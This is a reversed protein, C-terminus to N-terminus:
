LFIDIYVETVIISQKGVVPLIDKVMWSKPLAYPYQSSPRSIQEAMMPSCIVLLQLIPAVDLVFFEPQNLDEYVKELGYDLSVYILHFVMALCISRYIIFYLYLSLNVWCMGPHRDPKVYNAMEIINGFSIIAQPLACQCLPQSDEQLICLYCLVSQSAGTCSYYLFDYSRLGLEM